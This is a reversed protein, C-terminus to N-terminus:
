RIKKQWQLQSVILGFTAIDGHHGNSVYTDGIEIKRHLSRNLQCLCIVLSSTLSALNRDTQKDTQRGTQTYTHRDIQKNAEIQPVLLVVSLSM